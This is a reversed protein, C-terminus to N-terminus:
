EEPIRISVIKSKDSKLNNNDVAVIRYSVKGGRKIDRDVFANKTTFGLKKMVGLFGVMKYIEYKVIEPEPNKDWRVVLKDDSMSISINGPPSPIDKTIGSAVVSVASELRDVDVAKIQYHYRAGASLNKDIYKTTDANVKIEKQSESADIRKKIIIYNKLDPIPSPDWTVDIRNVNRKTANVGTVPPPISKTKASAIGTIYSEVNAQNFSSIAYYFEHGNELLIDVDGKDVYFLTLRGSIEKILFLEDELNYKRYLRYGIVTKDNPPMWSLSTIGAGGSFAKFNLPPSTRPATTAKVIDSFDGTTSKEIITAIKYYYNKNDTLSNKFRAFVKFTIRAAEKGDLYSTVYRSSTKAIEKFESGKSDARYIVYGSVRTNLHMSWTLPVARIEGSIAHFNQPPSDAPFDDAFLIIPSLVFYIAIFYSIRKLFM